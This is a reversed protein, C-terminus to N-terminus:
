ARSKKILDYAAQIEQSRETAVKVMDEPVGQGVLKDPHYQSMLKRYAKKIEDDSATSAVGLADYALALKDVSAEAQAGSYSYGSQSQRQRFQNQAQMMRLLQQFAAESYGLLFAVERLFGIEAEHLEHDSMAMTILYVLLIQKLHPYNTAVSLFEGMVVSLDFEPAVGKKFLRKAEERMEPSLRMRDMMSEAAQIENESVRGDAKAMRGLLPFICHFLALEIKQRQEPSFAARFNRWAKDFYYGAVFGILAGLWKGMAWGLLLGIIRGMWSM